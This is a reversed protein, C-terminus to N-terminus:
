CGDFAEVDTIAPASNSVPNTYTRTVGTSTDEVTLTYGLNTATAAFVWFHGNIACGDLVKVMAEWNDPDFFSYLGSDETSAVRQATGSENDTSWELKAEFRGDQLCLRDTPCRDFSLDALDLAFLERGIEPARASFYLTDGVLTASQPNSSDHGPFLDALLRTTKATGASVWPELGAGSGDDAAFFIGGPIPTLGQAGSGAAGPYIDILRQEPGDIVWLERGADSSGSAEMVIFVLDSSITMEVVWSGPEFQAWLEPGLGGDGLKWLQSGGSSSTLFLVMSDWALMPGILAGSFATLVTASQPDGSTVWVQWNGEADPAAFFVKSGVRTMERPLIPFSSNATPFTEIQQTGASSGNSSWLEGPGELDQFATLLVRDPLSLVTLAPASTGAGGSGVGGSTNPMWGPHISALLETSDQNGQTVWVQQDERATFILRDDVHGMRFPAVGLHISTEPQEHHFVKLGKADPAAQYLRDETSHVRGVDGSSLLQAPDGGLLWLDAESTSYLSDSPHTTVALHSGWPTLSGPNSGSDLSNLPIARPVSSLDAPRFWLSYPEPNQIVSTLLVQDGFSYVSQADLGAPETSAPTGRTTWFTSEGIPGPERNYRSFFLAETGAGQVFIVEHEAVKQRGQPGLLAWLESHSESFDPSLVDFVAYLTHDTSQLGRFFSISAPPLLEPALRTGNETGDSVWLVEQDAVRVKGYVKQNFVQAILSPDSATFEQLAKTGEETGDSVWIEIETASRQLLFILRHDLGVSVITRCSGECASQIRRTGSVTGDTRWLLDGNSDDSTWFFAQGDAPTLDYATKGAPLPLPYTGEATGDTIWLPDTPPVAANVPQFSLIFRDDVGVGEARLNSPNLTHPLRIVLGTGEVSGDSVWLQDGRIFFEREEAAGLLAFDFCVGPCIEVLPLTGGESGDSRWLRTDFVPDITVFFVQQGAVSVVGNPLAKVEAPEQTLDAVLRISDEQGSVSGAFGLSLTLLLSLLIFARSTFNLRPISLSTSPLHMPM